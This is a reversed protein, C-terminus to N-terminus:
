SDKPKEVITWHTPKYEWYDIYKNTGMFSMREINEFEDYYFVGNSFSGDERFILVDEKLMLDISPLEDKINVWKM